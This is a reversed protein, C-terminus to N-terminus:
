MEYSLQVTKTWPDVNITPTILGVLTKEDTTDDKKGLMSININTIQYIYNAQLVPLDFTYYTDEDVAMTTASEAVKVHAKIVLRTKRQSFTNSDSDGSTKNPYVFLNHGVSTATGSTPCPLSFIDYTVEPCGSTKTMPNYWFATNTHDEDAIAMPAGDALVGLPARGVVNKAYIEQITFTGGQLMTGNFNVTVKELQIMSALRKVNVTVSQPVASANKNKDYEVVNLTTKGSMVLSTPTNEKLDSLHKEFESLTKETLRPSNVVAYITKSGTRATFRLDYTGGDTPTSLTEYRDTEKIGAANFVLVQVSNIRRDKMSGDAVKTAPDSQIQLTVLGSPGESIPNVDEPVSNKNCALAGILGAAVLLVFQKKM